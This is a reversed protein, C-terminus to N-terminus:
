NLALNDILRIHNIFAAVLIIARQKGNWTSIPQLDSADAIEVYDVIFGGTSLMEIAKLKIPEINGPQINEKIKKMCEIIITAKNREIENLRMNRSSMALGDKERV